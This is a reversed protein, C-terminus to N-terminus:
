DPVVTVGELGRFDSDFTAIWAAGRDRAVALIAADVFSLKRADPRRFVDLAPFFYASCPVFELQTSRLMMEGAHRATARDARAALVTVVELFVYEPLLAPGWEERDLRIMGEVAAEHHADRKGHFAILFSSDVVVPM